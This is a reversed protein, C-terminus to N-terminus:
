IQNLTKRNFYRVLVVFSAFIGGFLTVFIVILARKPGSKIEPVVAPDVTKLVYESRVHALMLTKTQEEIMSFLMARVDSLNTEKIQENLYHISSQAESLDRQRMENNIEKVLDNLWSQALYPSFHEISVKVMGTTKDQSASFSKVFERHVELLSPKSQFPPNVKRVWSEAKSDYIDPDLILTDSVRDWGEAAMIPIFLDYKSVFRGIFDRSKLIELALATKDSQAVGLNVGALSALGGLQGPLQLGGQATVPALLVESKYRDPLSLVYFVAMAAFVLSTTLIIIKHIWLAAFLQNLDIEDDQMDSQKLEKESM